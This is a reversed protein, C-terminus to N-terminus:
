KPMRKSHKTPVSKTDSKYLKQSPNPNWKQFIEEYNRQEKGRRATKAFYARRICPLVLKSTEATWKKINKIYIKLDIESM